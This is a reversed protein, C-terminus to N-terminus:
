PLLMSRAYFDKSEPLGGALTTDLNAPPLASHADRDPILNLRNQVREGGPEPGYEISSHGIPERGGVTCLEDLASGAGIHDEIVDDSMRQPFKVPITIGGNFSKGLRLRDLEQKM